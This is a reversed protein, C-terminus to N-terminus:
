QESFKCHLESNSYEEYRSKMTACETAKQFDELITNKLVELVTRVQWSHESFKGSSNQSMKNQMVELITGGATNQMNQGWSIRDVSIM